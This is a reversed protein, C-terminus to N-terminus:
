DKVDAIKLKVYCSSENLGLRHHTLKAAATKNHSAIICRKYKLDAETIQERRTGFEGLFLVDCSDTSDAFDFYGLGYYSVTSGCFSLSASPIKVDSDEFRILQNVMISLNGINVNDGYEYFVVNVGENEAYDVINWMALSNDEAHPVPLYINYVKIENIIENVAEPLADSYTTIIWSNLENLLLERDVLEFNRRAASRSGRGLDLLIGGKDSRVMIADSGSESYFIFDGYSRYGASFSYFCLVFATFWCLYPLLLAYRQRIILLLVIGVAIAILTYKAFPYSTQIYSNPISAIIGVLQLTLYSVVNLFSGVAIALFPVLSLILFVPLTCLIVTLFSSVLLNSLMVVISVSDFFMLQAIFSFAGASLTTLISLGIFSLLKCFVGKESFGKIKKCYYGVIIVIGLTASFSLILSVDFVSSPSFAVILSVALMLSTLSDSRRNILEGLSMIIFMLGARLISTSAGSIFIFCVCLLTVMAAVIKRNLSFIGAIITICGMIVSLHMGSIALMHSLGSFKFDRKISEDMNDKQGVSLATLLSATDENTYEELQQTIAGQIRCIFVDFLNVQNGVKIYERVDGVLWIGRSHYYREIDFDDTNEIKAFSVTAKLIDGKSITGPDHVTINCNFDTSDPATVEGELYAVINSHYNVKNVYIEVNEYEKGIYAEANASHIGYYLYSYFMTLICTIALAAILFRKFVVSFVTIVLLVVATLLIIPLEIYYGAWFTILFVACCSALPRNKFISM